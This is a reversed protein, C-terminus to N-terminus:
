IISHERSTEIFVGLSLKGTLLGREITDVVRILATDTGKERSFAHQEDHLPNSSLSNRELEWKM